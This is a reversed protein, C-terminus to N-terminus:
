VIGCRSTSPTQLASAARRRSVELRTAVNVGDGHIDDGDGLNIGVRLEMRKDQPSDANREALAQQIAAAARVAGVVSAFDVARWGEENRGCARLDVETGVSLSNGLMLANTM